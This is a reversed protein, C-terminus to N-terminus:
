SNPYVGTDCFIFQKATFSVTYETNDGYYGSRVLKITIVDGLELSGVLQSLKALSNIAVEEGYDYSIEGGEGRVIKAVSAHTITDGVAIGKTVAQGGETLSIIKVQGGNTTYEQASFGLKENRGIVYGYNQGTYTSLLQTVVNIFGNDNIGNLKNIVYPIAYGIGIYSDSGSNTVGIVEGYLNFLAGGSSGHYIDTNLQLLTMKGIDGISVERNIYAITGVTVSGPLQGSPNGIAFVDEGVAITYGDAPALSAKVIQDSSVGTNTIDLKLLAIDSTKDGGVLTVTDTFNSGVNGVFCFKENYDSEGYNDGELDPVYVKIEGKYEIVHHCTLVYFVNEGDANQGHSDRRQVDIIVGSGYSVSGTNDTITIAVVARSVKAIAQKKNMEVRETLGSNFVVGHANNEPTDSPEDNPIDSPKDSPIDSPKDNPIDSPKDNPIDSPEDTTDNDGVVDGNNTGNQNENPTEPTSPESPQQNQEGGANDNQNNDNDENVNGNGNNNEGSIDGTIGGNNGTNNGNNNGNGNGCAVFASVALCLVLM